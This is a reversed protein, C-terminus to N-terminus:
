NRTPRPNSSSTIFLTFVMLVLPCITDTFILTSISVPPLLRRFFSCTSSITLRKAELHMIMMGSIGYTWTAKDSTLTLHLLVIGDILLFYQSCRKSHLLGGIIM